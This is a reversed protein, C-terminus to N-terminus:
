PPRRYGAQLSPAEQCWRHVPPVQPCGQLGPGQSPGQRWHVQRPSTLINSSSPVHHPQDIILSHWAKRRPRRCRPERHPFCAIFSQSYYERATQKTRAMASSPISSPQHYQSPNTTPPLHTTSSKIPFLPLFFFHHSHPLASYIPPLRPSNITCSHPSAALHCPATVQCPSAFVFWLLKECYFDAPLHAAKRGSSKPRRRALPLAAFNQHQRPQRALRCAAPMVWVVFVRRQLAGHGTGSIAGADHTNIADGGLRRGGELLGGRWRRLRERERDTGSLTKRVVEFSRLRLVGM